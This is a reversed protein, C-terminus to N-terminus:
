AEMFVLVIVSIQLFVQELHGDFTIITVDEKVLHKVPAHPSLIALHLNVFWHLNELQSSLILDVHHGQRRL